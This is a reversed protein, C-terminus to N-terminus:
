SSGVRVLSPPPLLIHERTKGKISAIKAEDLLGSSSAGMIDIHTGEEEIDLFSPDAIQVHVSLACLFDICQQSTDLKTSLESGKRESLRQTTLHTPSNFTSTSYAM